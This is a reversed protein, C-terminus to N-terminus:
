RKPSTVSKIEQVKKKRLHEKSYFPKQDLFHSGHDQDMIDVWQPPEWKKKKKRPTTGRSGAKHGFKSHKVTAHHRMLDRVSQDGTIQEATLHKTHVGLDEILDFPRVFLGKGDRCRFYSKNQVSGDHEGEGGYQVVVGIWREGSKAFLPCGSYRCWGIRGDGLRYRHNIKVKFGGFTTNQVKKAEDRERKKRRSSSVIAMSAMGSDESQWVRHIHDPEFDNDVSIGPRDPPPASTM